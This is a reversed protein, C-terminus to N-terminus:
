VMGYLVLCCGSILLSPPCSLGRTFLGVKRNLDLARDMSPDADLLVGLLTNVLDDTTAVGYAFKKVFEAMGGQMHSVM